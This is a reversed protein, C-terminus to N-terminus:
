KKVVVITLLFDMISSSSWRGNSLRHIGAVHTPRGCKSSSKRSKHPKPLTASSEQTNCSSNLILLTTFSDPSMVLEELNVFVVENGQRLLLVPFSELLQTALENDCGPLDQFLKVLDSLKVATSAEIM